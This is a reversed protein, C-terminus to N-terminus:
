LPATLAALTRLIVSLDASAADPSSPAFGTVAAGRLPFRARVARITEALADPAVGFPEPSGVGDIASPDLVDLDVHVYVSTAGTAELAALAADPTVLDEVAILRIGSEEIYTSEADDLARTGALVVHDPRLVALGRSALGEAGDGLLARLAMGGFSGSPSSEPTNLDGHADFWLLAVSGPAAAMVVRAVAPADAGCDGGILVVTDPLARLAAEVKERVGLLASYRHVGTGLSEGAETPIEVVTTASSPLDGVIANAGDILRMARSSGSGQWEPVVLFHTSM